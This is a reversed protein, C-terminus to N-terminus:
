AMGIQGIGPDVARQTLKRVLHEPERGKCVHRHGRLALAARRDLRRRRTTALGVTLTSRAWYLSRRHPGFLHAPRASIDGGGGPLQGSGFPSEVHRTPCSSFGVFCQMDGLVVVCDGLLAM